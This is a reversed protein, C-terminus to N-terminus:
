SVNASIGEPLCVTLTYSALKKEGEEFTKWVGSTVIGAKHLSTCIKALRDTEEEKSSVLQIIQGAENTVKGMKRMTM